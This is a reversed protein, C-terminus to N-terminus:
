ETVTPTYTFCDLYLISGTNSVNQEGSDDIRVLRAFGVSYVGGKDYSHEIKVCYRKGEIVCAASYTTSEGDWFILGFCYEKGSNYGALHAVYLQGGEALKRGVMEFGNVGGAFRYATTKASLYNMTIDQGNKDCIAKAATNADNAKPVVVSGDLMGRQTSRLEELAAEIGEKTTDNTIIAFLGTREDASLAEYEAQTGVFFRLGQGNITKITSVFGTDCDGVSGTAVAQSIATLIQEKTMSEFKCNKDCLVYYKQEAM